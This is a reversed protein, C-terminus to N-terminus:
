ITASLKAACCSQGDAACKRSVENGSPIIPVQHSIIADPIHRKVLTKLCDVFAWSRPLDVNDCGPSWDHLFSISDFDSDEDQLELNGYAAKVFAVYAPVLVFAGRENAMPLITRQYQM